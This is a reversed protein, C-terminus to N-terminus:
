LAIRYCREDDSESEISTEFNVDEDGNKEKRTKRAKKISGLLQEVNLSLIWKGKVQGMSYVVGKRRGKEDVDDDGWPSEEKMVVVEQLFSIPTGRNVEFEIPEEGGGGGWLMTMRGSKHLRLQGVIGAPPTADLLAAQAKASLKKPPPKSAQAASYETKIVPEASAPKDGEGPEIRVADESTEVPELPPLYNPVQFIFIQNELDPNLHHSGGGMGVDGDQDAEPLDALLEKLNLANEAHTLKQELIHQPTMYKRGASMRRPAKKTEPSESQKIFKKKNEPSSLLDPHFVDDDVPEDKIAIRDLIVSERGKGKGNNKPEKTKKSSADTNVFAARDVHESREVRVPAGAGWLADRDMEKDGDEDELKEDLLSIYEVDMKPGDSEDSSSYEAKVEGDEGESKMKGKFSSSLSQKSRYDMGREVAIKQRGSIVSGMSFPGSAGAVIGQERATDAGFAGRGRGGKGRGRPGRSSPGRPATGTPATAFKADLQEREEKTRRQVFKPKFKLPAGRASATAAPRTSLSDLRGAPPAISTTPVVEAATEPTSNQASSGEGPTSSAAGRRPVPRPKQKLKPPM